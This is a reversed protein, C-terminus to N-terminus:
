RIGRCYGPIETESVGIETETGMGGQLTEPFAFDYNGDRRLMSLRTTSNPHGSEMCVARLLLLVDMNDEEEEPM